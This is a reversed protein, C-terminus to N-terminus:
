LFCLVVEAAEIYDTSTTGGSSGIEDRSEFNLLFLSLDWIWFHGSQDSMKAILYFERLYVM